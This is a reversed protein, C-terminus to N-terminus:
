KAWLEFVAWKYLITGIKLAWKKWNGLPSGIGKKQKLGKRSLSGIQACWNYGNEESNVRDSSSKNQFFGNGIKIEIVINKVRWLPPHFHLRPFRIERVTPLRYHQIYLLSIWRLLGLNIKVLHLFYSHRLICFFFPFSM